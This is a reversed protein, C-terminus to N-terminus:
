GKRRAILEEDSMPAIDEGVLYGALRRVTPYKWTLTPELKVSLWNELEGTLAVEHVSGLGLAAFTEDADIASGPRELAEAVRARLFAEVEAKPKKVVPRTPAPTPTPTMPTQPRPLHAHAHVEPHPRPEGSGSSASPSVAPGVGELAEYSPDRWEAVVELEGKLFLAKNARRQIKGSSTKAIARAEILVIASPAVSHELAITERLRMLVGNPDGLRATDVEAVLVVQDGRPGVVAFAATCGSRISSHAREATREIDQPYHNQGNLIILDKARGTVYLEGASLFGLDGTRLFPGENTKAIHAQFLERTEAPRGWYGLGVAGSHVWVEGVTGPPARRLTEPNVIIAKYTPPAKGSSVLTKKPGTGPPEVRGSLLAAQDVEMTVPGEMVKGTTVFVTGEALGYCCFFAKYNFGNPAFAEAFRRLTEPQIPEAGNLALKWCSLDLGERMEPKVKKVCLEYAFNPGGSADIRLDSIARLWREPHQLFEYTAMTYQLSGSLVPYLVHNVLGLDHFMPVWSFIRSSEDLGSLKRQAAVNNHINGHSLLVGRPTATSGSTYQIFAPDASKPVYERWRGADSEPMADSSMWRLEGLEPALARMGEIGGMIMETTIAVTAGADHAIAQLRPLTRHIRMPDPPYVPVPMVGARLCGWFGLVFDIGPPYILLARAGVPAVEQLNAAIARTRLELDRFTLPPSAVDGVFHYVVRDPTREARERLISLLTEDAM